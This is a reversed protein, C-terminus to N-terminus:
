LTIRISGSWPGWVGNARARISVDYQSGLCLGVAQVRGSSVQGNIVDSHDTVCGGLFFGDMSIEYGDAGPVINWAFDGYTDCCGQGTKRLGTPAAPTGSATVSRTTSSSAGYSDTITLTVVFTGAPFTKNITQGSGSGLEEFNWSYSTISGSSDTSGSADFSVNLPAAGSSPTATFSAVPAVNNSVVTRTTSATGGNNDTVTLTVTFTGVGFVHTATVGTATGGDGFSWGYSAITGNPDTSGSADFSVTLPANGSSPTTTFSPLPLANAVTVTRTTSATAGNNDTVTLTVTFTGVPFVHSTTAGSGSTGDGFDWAYSAITGDPDTSGGANLAVALPATGSSPSTTFSAIPNLNTATITTSASDTAGDTDTVTVTATYTGVGYTHQPSPGSGSAGDGFDWAYSAIPGNADNSGTADFQVTLPGPGTGPTANLAAVPAPNGVTILVSATDTRGYNDTVTLVATFTGSDYTHSANLGTGSTATM